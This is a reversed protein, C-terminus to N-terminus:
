HGFQVDGVIVLLDGVGELVIDTRVHQIDEDVDTIEVVLVPMLIVMARGGVDFKGILVLILVKCQSNHLLIKGKSEDDLLRIEVPRVENLLINLHKSPSETFQEISGGGDELSLCQM